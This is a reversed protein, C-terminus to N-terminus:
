SMDYTMRPAFYRQQAITIIVLFAFLILAMVSAEGLDLSVFAEQYIRSAIVDTSGGPYGRASGTLGYVLDFVQFSAVVETVMIFFTTPRLLPLTMQTLTTWPGAGDLKAAEYVSSPIAQLGALFFLSIYGVKSWVYVFAVAPLALNVDSMWEVRQGLLANVLGNSPSFLWRWVVGLALPACVWPLVYLVRFFGRGPLNRNLAVALLLGCVVSAPIAMLVFKGTVLLSNWFKRDQLINEWNETGVFEPSTILDWDMLSLAAVLFVPVILFVGVGVFSPILFTYATATEQRRRARQGPRLHEAERRRTGAPTTGRANRPPPTPSADESPADRPPPPTAAPTTAATM